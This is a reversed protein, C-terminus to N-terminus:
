TKSIRNFFPVQIVSVSVDHSTGNHSWCFKPIIKKYNSCYETLLTVEVEESFSEMGEIISQQFFSGSVAGPLTLPFKYKGDQNWCIGGIWLIKM